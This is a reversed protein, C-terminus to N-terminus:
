LYVQSCWSQESDSLPEWRVLAIFPRSFLLPSSRLACTEFGTYWSYPLYLYIFLLVPCPLFNLFAPHGLGMGTVLGSPFALTFPYYGLFARKFHLEPNISVLTSISMPVSWALEGRLRPPCQFVAVIEDSWLPSCTGCIDWLSWHDVRRRSLDECSFHGFRSDLCPICPM